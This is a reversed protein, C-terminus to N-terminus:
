WRRSGPARRLLARWTTPAAALHEFNDLVLLARQEGLADTAADLAAGSRSRHAADVAGAIADAM